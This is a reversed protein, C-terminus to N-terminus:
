RRPEASPARYARELQADRRERRRIPLVLLLAFASAGILGLGMWALAVLIAHLTVSMVSM